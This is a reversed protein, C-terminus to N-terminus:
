AANRIQHANHFDQIEFNPRVSYIRSLEMIREQGNKPYIKSYLKVVEPHNTTTVILLYRVVKLVKNMLVKTQEPAFQKSIVEQLNAVVNVTECKLMMDIETWTSMVEQYARELDSESSKKLEKDMELLDLAGHHCEEQWHAKLFNKFLADVEEHPEVILYHRQSNFEALTTFIFVSLASKNLLTRCFTIAQDQTLMKLSTKARQHKYIEILREIAQQHKAEEDCFRSIARFEEASAFRENHAITAYFARIYVELFHFANLYSIGLLQNLILQESDKLIGRLENLETADEPFFPKELDFQSKKNVVNDINWANAESSRLIHNYNIKLDLM